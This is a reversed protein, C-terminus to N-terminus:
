LIQNELEALLENAEAPSFTYCEAGPVYGKWLEWEPYMGTRLKISFVTAGANAAEKYFKETVKQNKSNYLNFM